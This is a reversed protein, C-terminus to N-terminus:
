EVLHILVEVMVDRSDPYPFIVEGEPLPNIVERGCIDSVFRMTKSIYSDNQPDKKYESVQEEIYKEVDDYVDDSVDMTDSMSFSVSEGFVNKNMAEVGSIIVEITGYM